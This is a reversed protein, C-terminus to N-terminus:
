YETLLSNSPPNGIIKLKDKTNYGVANDLYIKCKEENLRKNIKIKKENAINWM